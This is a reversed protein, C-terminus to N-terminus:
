FGKKNNLMYWLASSKKLIFGRISLQFKPHLNSIYLGNSPCINASVKNIHLGFAFCLMSSTQIHKYYFLQM